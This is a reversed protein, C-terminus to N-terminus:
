ALTELNHWKVLLNDSKWLPGPDRLRHTEEGGLAKYFARAATNQEVVALTLSTYGERALQALALDFLARGVGRQKASAHVYLHNIEAERTTKHGGCILGLIQNNEVAVWVRRTAEELYAVWAPLRRSIGLAALAEPPAMSAYTERWVSVHLEALARAEHKHAPRFIM